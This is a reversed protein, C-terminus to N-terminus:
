LKARGVMPKTRPSLRVTLSGLEVDWSTKSTKAGLLSGSEPIRPRTPRQPMRPMLGHATYGSKDSTTVDFDEFFHRARQRMTSRIAFIETDIRRDIEAMPPQRNDVDRTSALRHARPITTVANNVISLDVVKSLESSFEFFFTVSKRCIM